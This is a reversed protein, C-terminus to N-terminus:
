EKARFDFRRSPSGEVTFRDHIDPHSERLAKADFRRRGKVPSWLVRGFDGRIGKDDGIAAKLRSEIEKKRKELPKIAARVEALERCLAAEDDTATRITEGPTPHRQLLYESADGTIEPAEGGVIHREWWARCHDVIRALAVDDREVKYRAFKESLTFLVAFDVRDLGTVACYWLGQVQYYVPVQDTGSEGWDEDSRSTKAELVVPRDMGPLDALRDVSGVMWPEPGVAPEISRIKAGTEDAYWQCVGDELYRGRALHPKDDATVEQTKSAWVDFATRWKSLGLVAAVDSGGLGQRRWQLWETRDQATSM